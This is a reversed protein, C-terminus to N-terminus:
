SGSAANKRNPKARARAAGEVGGVRWLFAALRKSRIGQADAYELAAAWKSARKIELYPVACRILLLFLVRGVALLSMLGPGYSANLRTTFGM